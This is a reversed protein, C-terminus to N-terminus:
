RYKAQINLVSFFFFFCIFLPCRSLESKLKILLLDYLLGGNHIWRKVNRMRSQRFNWKQYTEGDMADCTRICFVSHFLSFQQVIGIQRRARNRHIETFKIESSMQVYVDDCDGMAWQWAHVMQLHWIMSLMPFLKTRGLKGEGRLRHCWCNEISGVLIDSDMYSLHIVCQSSLEHVTLM